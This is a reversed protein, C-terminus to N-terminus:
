PMKLTLLPVAVRLEATCEADRAIALLLRKVHREGGLEPEVVFRICIRIAARKIGKYPTLKM